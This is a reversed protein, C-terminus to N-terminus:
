VDLNINFYEELLQKCDVGFLGGNVKDYFESDNKYFLEKAMYNYIGGIKTNIANNPHRKLYDNGCRIYMRLMRPYQKFQERRKTYSALPCGMCGLRRTVDINGNEDYYLPHLQINREKVFNLVDENEWNLIPFWQQCSEFDRLEPNYTTRCDNPEKYMQKRKRSECSRIGLLVVDGHKYEKLTECCFRYKSSPIGKRLMLHRFTEKPRLIEVGNDICHKITYPPDITTNKYVAHYEVGAMKTLELIVDSDKGGSYAVELVTHKRKQM